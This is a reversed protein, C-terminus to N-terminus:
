GRWTIATALPLPMMGKGARKCAASAASAPIPVPARHMSDYPSRIAADVINLSMNLPKFFRCRARSASFLTHDRSSTSVGDRAPRMSPSFIAVM